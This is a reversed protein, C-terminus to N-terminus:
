GREAAQCCGSAPAAARRWRHGGPGWGPRAGSPGCAQRWGDRCQPGPQNGRLLRPGSAVRRGTPASPDPVTTVSSPFPYGCYGPVLPDCDLHPYLPDPPTDPEDEGGDDPAPETDLETDGALEGVADALPADPPLDEGDDSTDRADGERDGDSGGTGTDGTCGHAGLTVFLVILFLSVRAV